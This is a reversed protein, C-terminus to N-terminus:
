LQAKSLRLKDIATQKRIDILGYERVARCEIPCNVRWGIWWNASWKRFARQQVKGCYVRVAALKLAARHTHTHTVIDAFGCGGIMLEDEDEDPELELDSVIGEAGDM